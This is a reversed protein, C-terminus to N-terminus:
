QAPGVDMGDYLVEGHGEALTYLEQERADLKAPTLREVKEVQLQLLAPAAKDAKDQPRIDVVTYGKAALLTAVAQLDAKDPGVFYFTWLLDGSTDWPAHAKMDAFLAKSSSPAAKDQAYAPVGFALALAVTVAITKIM